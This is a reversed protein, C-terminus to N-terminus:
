GQGEKIRERWDEVQREFVAVNECLLGRYRWGDKALQNINDAGDDDISGYALLKHVYELRYKYRM